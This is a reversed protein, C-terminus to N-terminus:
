GASPLTWMHTAKGAAAAASLDNHQMSRALSPSINEKYKETWSPPAGVDLSYHLVFRRLSCFRLGGGSTWAPTRSDGWLTCCFLSPPPPCVVLKQGTPSFNGGLRGVVVAEARIGQMCVAKLGCEERPRPYQRLNSCCACLGFLM